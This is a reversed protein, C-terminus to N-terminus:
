FAPRPRQHFYGLKGNRPIDKRYWGVLWSRHKCRSLSRRRRQLKMYNRGAPAEIEITYGTTKGVDVAALVLLIPLAYGAIGTTREEVAGRNRFIRLRFVYNTIAIRRAGDLSGSRNRSHRSRCCRLKYGLWVGRRYARTAKEGVVKCALAIVVEERGSM